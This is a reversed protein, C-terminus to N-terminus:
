LTITCDIWRNNLSSRSTANKSYNVPESQSGRRNSSVRRAEAVHMLSRLEASLRELEQEYGPKAHITRLDGVM